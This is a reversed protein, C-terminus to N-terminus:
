DMLKSEQSKLMGLDVISLYITRESGFMENQGGGSDESM